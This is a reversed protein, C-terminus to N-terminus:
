LVMEPKSAGLLNCGFARARPDPVLFAHAMGAQFDQYRRQLPHDLYISRGSAARFLDGVSGAVREVGRNMDWRVRGRLAMDPTAGAEAMEALMTLDARVIAVAADLDWTAEALRRQASEHLWALQRLRERAAAADPGDGALIVTRMAGLTRAGLVPSDAMRELVKVCAALHEEPMGLAPICARSLGAYAPMPLSAVIGTVTVANQDAVTAARHLRYQAGLARAEDRSPARAQLPAMADLM